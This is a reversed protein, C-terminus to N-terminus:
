HFYLTRSSYHSSLFVQLALKYTIFAMTLFKPSSVGGSQINLSSVISAISFSVQDKELSWPNQDKGLMKGFGETSTWPSLETEAM